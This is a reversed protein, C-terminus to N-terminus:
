DPAAAAREPTADATSASSIDSDQSRERAGEAADVPVLPVAGSLVKRMLRQRTTVAHTGPRIGASENRMVRSAAADAEQEAPEAASSVGGKAQVADGAGQQVM